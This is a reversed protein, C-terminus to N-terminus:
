AFPSLGLGNTLPKRHSMLVSEPVRLHKLPKLDYRWQWSDFFFALKLCIYKIKGNLAIYQDLASDIMRNIPMRGCLVKGSM